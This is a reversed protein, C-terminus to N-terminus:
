RRERSCRVHFTLTPISMVASVREWGHCGGHGCALQTELPGKAASEIRVGSGAGLELSYFHLMEGFLM